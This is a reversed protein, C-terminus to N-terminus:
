LRRPRFDRFEGDPGVGYRDHGFRNVGQENFGDLDYGEDDVFKGTREFNDFCQQRRKLEEGQIRSHEWFLRSM